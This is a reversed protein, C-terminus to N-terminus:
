FHAGRVPLAGMSSVLRPWRADLTAFEAALQNTRISKVM